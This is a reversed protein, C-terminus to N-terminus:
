VRKSGLLEEYLHKQQNAVLGIDFKTEARERAAAVMAQTQPASSILYSLVAEAIAQANRPPVVYGTQGDIVLEAAAGVDTTVVPVKMAMAELLAVPCSELLSPLVFVDMISLIGPIDEQFGAFIVDDQLGLEATQKQLQQWCEQATELPRGVIIFKADPVKAKITQAAEILYTHGKLPNLNGIAGILPSTLPIGLEQRLRERSSANYRTSDFRKTDVGGYIVITKRAIRPRDEVRQRRLKQGQVIIRASLRGILPLLLRELLRPLHDNYHYVVPKRTWCGALVPVVNSIGDVHVIDIHHDRILKCIKLTNSPLFVLFMLLNLVPRRRRMFHLHKLYVDDPAERCRIADEKQGFLFIMEVGQRQLHEAIAFNRRHPGGFRSDSICNLVRIQPDM